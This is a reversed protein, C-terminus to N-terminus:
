NSEVNSMRKRATLDVFLEIQTMWQAGKTIIVGLWHTPHFYDYQLTVRTEEFSWFQLKVVLYNLKMDLVSMPHTSMATVWVSMATGNASIWDAFEVARVSQTPWHVYTTIAFLILRKIFLLWCVSVFLICSYVHNPSFNIVPIKLARWFKVISVFPIHVFWFTDLFILCM